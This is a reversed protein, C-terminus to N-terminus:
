RKDGTCRRRNKALFFYIFVNFFFLFLSFAEDGRSDHVEVTICSNGLSVRRKEEYGEDRGTRRETGSKWATRRSDVNWDCGMASEWKNVMGQIEGEVARESPPFIAYEPWIACIKKRCHIIRPQLPPSVAPLGPPPLRATISKTKKKITVSQLTFFFCTCPSNCAHTGLTCHSTTTSFCEDLCSNRQLMNPKESTSPSLRLRRWPEARPSCNIPPSTCIGSWSHYLVVLNACLVRLHLLPTLWKVFFFNRKAWRCYMLLM